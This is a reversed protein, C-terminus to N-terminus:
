YGHRQSGQRHCAAAGSLWSLELGFGLNLAERVM